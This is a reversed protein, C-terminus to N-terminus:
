RFVSRVKEFKQLGQGFPTLIDYMQSLSDKSLNNKVFNALTGSPGLDLYHSPNIKELELITKQFYVPQRIVEWLYDPTIELVRKNLLSSIIPIEPRRFKFSQLSKKFPNAIPDINASHFGYRVPLTQFLIKKTKLYDEVRLLKEYEGSIVFHNPFNIGALDSNQFLTPSEAYLDPKSIIAAMRGMRCNNKLLEAQKLLCELTEELSVVGALAIATFEGLSVGLLLDPEIGNEMLVKALSYELMFIAPHTYLVDDWLDAKGKTDSYMENIVSRGSQQYVLDNLKLM